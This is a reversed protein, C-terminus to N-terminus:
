IKNKVVHNGIYERWSRKEKNMLLVPHACISIGETTFQIDFLNDRQSPLIYNMNQCVNHHPFKAIGSSPITIKLLKHIGPLTGVMPYYRKLIIRLKRTQHTLLNIGQPNSDKTRVTQLQSYETISRLRTKWKTEEIICMEYLLNNHIIETFLSFMRLKEHYQPMASAPKMCLSGSKRIISQTTFANQLLFVQKPQNSKEMQTISYNLLEPLSSVHILTIRQIIENMTTSIGAKSKMQSTTFIKGKKETQWLCHEKMKREKLCSIIWQDKSLPTDDMPWNLIFTQHCKIFTYPIVKGILYGDQHAIWKRLPLDCITTNDADYFVGHSCNKGVLCKVMYRETEHHKIGDQHIWHVQYHGACFQIKLGQKKVMKALVLGEGVEEDVSHVYVNSETTCDTSVASHQQPEEEERRVAHDEDKIVDVFDIAIRKSPTNHGYEKKDGFVKSSLTSTNEKSNCLSSSYKQTAIGVPCETSTHQLSHPKWKMTKEREVLKESAAAALVIDSLYYFSRSSLWKCIAWRLGM